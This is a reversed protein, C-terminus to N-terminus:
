KNETKRKYDANGRLVAKAAELIKIHLMKRVLEFYKLIEDKIWSQNLLTKSLKWINSSKGSIKKNNFQVITLVYLM